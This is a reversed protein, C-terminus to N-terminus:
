ADASPAPGEWQVAPLPITSLVEYKPGSRSLESSYVIVEDVPSSGFFRDKEQELLETLISAPSGPHERRVRFEQKARAVTLHPMFQRHEPRFGLPLLENEIDAALTRIEDVGDRVGVWFSRPTDLSPFAGIGEFVLDFQTSRSCARQVAKVVQHIDTLPVDGLFKLTTHFQNDDVWRLAPFERRIPELVKRVADRVGQSIECAVFTRILSKFSM